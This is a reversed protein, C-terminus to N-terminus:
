RMRRPCSSRGSSRTSGCCRRACGPRSPGAAPRHLQGPRRHEGAGAAIGVSGRGRGPLGPLRRQRHRPAARRGGRGAAGAAAGPRAQGLGPADIRRGAVDCVPGRGPRQPRTRRGPLRGAGRGAGPGDRVGRRRHHERGFSTASIGQVGVAFLLARLGVVLAVVIAAEVALRYSTVLNRWLVAIVRKALLRPRGMVPAAMVTARRQGNRVPGAGVSTV